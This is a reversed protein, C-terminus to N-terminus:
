IEGILGSQVATEYIGYAYVVAEFARVFDKKDQFYRCDQIYAKLNEIAWRAKNELPKISNMKGELRELWKETEKKLTEEVNEM